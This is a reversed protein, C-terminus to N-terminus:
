DNLDLYLELIEVAEDRKNGIPNTGESFIDVEVIHGGDKTAAESRNPSGFAVGDDGAEISTVEAGNAQAASALEALVEDSILGAGSVIAVGAGEGNGTYSCGSAVVISGSVALDVDYGVIDSVTEATPCEVDGVTVGDAVDKVASAFKWVAVAILVVVVLLVAGVIALTILCGKGGKSPQPAPPMPPPPPTAQQPPYWRGDSALWWGPGPPTQPTSM